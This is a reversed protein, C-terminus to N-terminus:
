DLIKIRKMQKWKMETDEFINLCVFINCTEKYYLFKRVQWDQSENDRILCLEGKEPLVIPREQSVGQLTYETFSLLECSYDFWLDRDIFFEVFSDSSVFVSGVTDISILTGSSDIAAILYITSTFPTTGYNKITIQHTYSDNLFVSDPYFNASPGLSDLGLNQAKSIFSFTIAFIFIFLKLLLKM